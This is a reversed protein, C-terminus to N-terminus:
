RRWERKPMTAVEDSDSKVFADHLLLSGSIATSPETCPQLHLKGAGVVAVTEGLPRCVWPCFIRAYNM